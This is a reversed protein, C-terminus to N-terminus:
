TEPERSGLGNACGSDRCRGPGRPAPRVPASRGGRGPSPPLLLLLRRRLGPARESSTETGSRRRRGRQRAARLRSPGDGGRLMALRQRRRAARSARAAQGLRSYSPLSPHSSKCEKKKFPDKDTPFKTTCTIFHIILKRFM